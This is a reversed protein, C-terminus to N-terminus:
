GTAAGATRRRLVWARRLCLLSYCLLVVGWGMRVWEVAQPYPGRPPQNGSQLLLVLSLTLGFVFEAITWARGCDRTTNRLDIKWGVWWWFLFLILNYEWFLYFMGRRGAIPLFGHNMAYRDPLNVVVRPVLDLCHVAFYLNPSRALHGHYFGPSMGLALLLNAVSLAIRWKWNTM